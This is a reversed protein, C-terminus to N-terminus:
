NSKAKEEQAKISTPQSGTIGGYLSTLVYTAFLVIFATAFLRIPDSNRIKWGATWWLYLVGFGSTLVLLLVFAVPNKEFPGVFTQGAGFLKGLLAVLANFLYGVFNSLIVAVVFGVLGM